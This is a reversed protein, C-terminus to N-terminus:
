LPNIEIRHFLKYNNAGELLLEMLKSICKIGPNAINILMFVVKTHYALYKPKSNM